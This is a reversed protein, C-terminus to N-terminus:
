RLHLKHFFSIKKLIDTSMDFKQSSKKPDLKEIFKKIDDTNKESFRFTKPKNKTKILKISPHNRYKKIISSVPYEESSDFSEYEQNKSMNKIPISIFYENFKKTTLHDQSIVREEEILTIRFTNNTKDTLFPKVTKWFTRNETM